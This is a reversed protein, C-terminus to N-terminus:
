RPPAAAPAQAAAHVQADVVALASMNVIGRVTVSSTLIHAPRSVGLLMPGVSIGEGLQKLLNFAINASDLSPMVLLNATGKLRSNPFIRSRIEESLAADGQMEGEVELEPAIQGIRVLAERMKRAPATERGGFNSHSLLAVKPEIGFRRVGRAAIVTTAALTEASPDLTVHTDVIFHIGRAPPQCLPWQYRV